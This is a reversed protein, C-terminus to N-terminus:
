RVADAAARARASVRWEAPLGSLDLPVWATADIEENPRLDASVARGSLVTLHGRGGEGTLHESVREVSTLEIGLEERCERRAAHEPSERRPRYGGGPLGWVDRDGYSHRVLLFGGAHDPHLVLVKVGHTRPKLVRRYARRLRHLLPLAARPIRM